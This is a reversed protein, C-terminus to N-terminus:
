NAIRQLIFERMPAINPALLLDTLEGPEVWKYNLELHQPSAQLTDSTYEYLLTLRPIGDFISTSDIFTPLPSINTPEIALDIEESIERALAEIVLEGHDIGGGPLGFWGESEEVVLLRRDKVILLKASVRFLSSTIANLAPNIDTPPM